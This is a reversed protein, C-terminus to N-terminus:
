ALLLAEVPLPVITANAPQIFLKRHFMQASEGSMRMCVYYPSSVLRAVMLTYGSLTREGVRTMRNEVAITPVVVFLRVFFAPNHPLSAGM